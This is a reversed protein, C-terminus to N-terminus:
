QGHKLGEFKYGVGWITHIWQPHAPCDEIKDRIRAIFVRVSHSDGYNEEWIKSILQEHTFVQKPHSAFFELIDYEKSTLPIQENKKWVEHARTDIKLDGFDLIYTEPHNEETHPVHFRRRVAKIRAIIEGPTASKVIYDDAGLNLGRIKDIDDQKASLFLIPVNSIKRIEKCVTFGDINPMMIDLLICDIKESKLINLATEGDYAALVKYGDIELFDKLLDVIEIEDDTILITEEM